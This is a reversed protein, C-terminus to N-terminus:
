YPGSCALTKSHFQKLVASNWASTTRFTFLLSVYINVVSYLYFGEVFHKKTHDAEIWFRVSYM